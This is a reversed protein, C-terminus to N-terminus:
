RASNWILFHRAGSLTSTLTITSTPIATERGRMSRMIAPLKARVSRIWKIGYWYSTKSLRRLYKIPVEMSCLTVEGGGWSNLVNEYRTAFYFYMRAIDGKFEDIPEFVTGSYGSAYGTNSAGGVKSGNLSTLTTAGVKGFPLNGRDGNVKGDTPTVFHADNRMPIAENFFSQPIIHERNYCDGEQSYNGCQNNGPTYTYPDSGSPNESYMDLVSGDNEYFYDRDSTEFTVYLGSYGQDSHNKIINFLQTKLTYGTGTASAYYGPPAQALSVFCSLLVSSKIIVNKM